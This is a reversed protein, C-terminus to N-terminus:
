SGFLTQLTTRRMSVTAGRALQAGSSSAQVPRTDRPGCVNAAGGAPTRSSLSVATAEPFLTGVMRASAKLVRRTRRVLTCVDKMNDMRFVRVDRAAGVDTQVQWKSRPCASVARLVKTCRGCKEVFADGLLVSMPVQEISRVHRICAEAVYPDTERRWTRKDVLTIGFAVVALMAVQLDGDEPLRDAVSLDNLIILDVKELCKMTVMHYGTGKDDVVSGTLNLCHVRRYHRSPRQVRAGAMPRFLNGLRRKQLPYPEQGTRRRCLRDVNARKKTKTLAEFETLKKSHPATEAAAPRLDIPRGFLTRLSSARPGAAASM